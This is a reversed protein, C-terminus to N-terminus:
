NTIRIEDCAIISKQAKKRIVKLQLQKLESFNLLFEANAVQEHVNLQASVLTQLVKGESLVQIKEPVRMGHREMILFRLVLRKKGQIHDVPIRVHLDDTSSLYWGQHYDMAFGLAGDNLLRSTEFGEDSKSLVQIKTHMLANELSSRRIVDEWAAIYDSLAGDTEKYNILDPYLVHTKLQKLIDKIEPKVKVTNGRLDAYGWEQAINVYAIQLRTYSLATYMKMLKGREPEPVQPIIKNLANYFLIFSHPDLYTKMNQRIGGYMDYAKNKNDYRRELSLYYDTLLAHSVPYEKKLFLACLTDINADTDMLLAGAVFTKVDDFPLYDYGSANLFVGKIGLKKFYTLQKQLGYLIPIPTLYDDFNATYDWLFINDTRMKWQQVADFFRKTAATQKEPAIGKPLDITSFFVGANKPLPQAPPLSTTLYASTFFEHLPFRDALRHILASVAPTANSPSNGEAQCLSCTCSLRNDQPMIMFRYSQKEGSGFNDTIYRSLSEQLVQSSFCFQEPNRKGEVLAYVEIPPNKGVAKAINHGWLGWDTELNNTGLVPAYDPGLNPAFYPERYTFDFNRCRDTFAIMAPPLDTAVFRADEAAIAAILQYIIWLAARKDRAQLTLAKETHSVCYDTGMDASIDFHIRKYSNRLVFDIPKAGFVVIEKKTTRKSLHYYCYTAWRESLANDEFTIIYGPAELKQATGASCSVLLLVLGMGFRHWLRSHSM